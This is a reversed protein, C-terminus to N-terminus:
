RTKGWRISLNIIRIVLLAVQLLDLQIKSRSPLRPCQGAGELTQVLVQVKTILLKSELNPSSARTRLKAMLKIIWEVIQFFRGLCNSMLQSQLLRIIAEVALHLHDSFSYSRWLETNDRVAAVLENFHGSKSPIFSRFQFYSLYWWVQSLFSFLFGM